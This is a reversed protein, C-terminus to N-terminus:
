LRFVRQVSPLALVRQVSYAFIPVSRTRHDTGKERFVPIRVLLMTLIVHLSLRARSVGRRDDRLAGIRSRMEETEDEKEREERRKERERERERKREGRRAREM